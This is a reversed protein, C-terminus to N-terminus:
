REIKAIMLKKLITFIYEQAHASTLLLCISLLVKINVTKYIRTKDLQYCASIQDVKTGKKKYM